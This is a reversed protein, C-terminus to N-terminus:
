SSASSPPRLWVLSVVISPQAVGCRLRMMVGGYDFSQIVRCKNCTSHISLEAHLQKLQM